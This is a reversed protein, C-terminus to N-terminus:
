ELPTFSTAPVQGAPAEVVRLNDVFLGGGPLRGGYIMLNVFLDGSAPRGGSGDNRRVDALRVTARTWRGRIPDRVKFQFNQSRTSNFAQLLLTPTNLGAWYDFVLVQSDNLTISHGTAQLDFAIMNTQPAWKSIGGTAVFRNDARPPGATVAAAELGAPILGDEFDYSFLVIGESSVGGRDAEAPGTPLSPPPTPGAVVLEAPEPSGAARWQPLGSPKTTRGGGNTAGGVADSRGSGRLLRVVGVGALALAGVLATAVAARAITRGRRHHRRQWRDRARAEVRIVEGMVNAVARTRRAGIAGMVAPAVDVSRGRRLGAETELLLMARRREPAPADASIRELEDLEISSLEGDTLRALLEDARESM